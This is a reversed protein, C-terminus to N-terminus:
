RSSRSTTSGTENDLVLFMNERYKGWHGSQDGVAGQQVAAADQDRVYGDRQLERMFQSSRTTSRRAASPGSRRAPAFPHFMFLDLEQRAQPPRAEEGGRPPLPARRAGGEQSWATGYIRQLMQRKEDGRWYAGATNLLKFHKLRGPTPSTRAAACTSSRGTPTPRSSRTPDHLRRPARAQASRRRVAQAGGRPDVEERVFPYKEAVVKRM